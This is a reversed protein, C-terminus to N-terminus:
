RFWTPYLTIRSRRLDKYNRDKMQVMHSIFTEGAKSYVGLAVSEDSGHPIYLCNIAIDIFGDLVSEDSGHPIYLTTGSPKNTINSLSEDSGHPIYLQLKV